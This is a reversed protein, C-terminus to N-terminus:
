CSWFICTLLIDFSVQLTRINEIKEGHAGVLAARKLRLAELAKEQEEINEAVGAAGEIADRQRKYKECNRKLEAVKEKAEMIDINTSLNKKRQEADEKSCRFAILKPQLLELQTKKIEVESKISAVKAAINDFKTGEYEDIQIQLKQLVEVDKVL